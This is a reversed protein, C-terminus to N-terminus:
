EADAAEKRAQELLVQAALADARAATHGAVPLHNDFRCKGGSSLSGKVEIEFLLFFFFHVISCM